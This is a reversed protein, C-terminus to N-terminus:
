CTSYSTPGGPTFIRIVTTTLACLIGMSVAIGVGIKEKTEMQLGWIVKWPLLALAWDTVTSYVGLAIGIDVIIRPDWCTGELMPQWNKPIPNCQVWLLLASVSAAASSSLMLFWIFVRAKGDILRLLTIGFSM